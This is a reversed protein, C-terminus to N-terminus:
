AIYNVKFNEDFESGYYSSEDPIETFDNLKQFLKSKKPSSNKNESYKFSTLKSNNQDIKPTIDNNLSTQISNGTKFIINSNNLM